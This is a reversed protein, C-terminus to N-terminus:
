KTMSETGTFSMDGSGKETGAADLISLPGKLAVATVEGNTPRIDITGDLKSRLRTQADVKMTFTMSVNFTAKDGDASNLIFEVGDIKTSGDDKQGILALV